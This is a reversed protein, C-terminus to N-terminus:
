RYKKKPETEHDDPFSISSKSGLNSSRLLRSLRCRPFLLVILCLVQGNVNMLFFPQSVLCDSCDHVYPSECTAEEDADADADVDM